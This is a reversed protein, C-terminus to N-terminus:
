GIAIPHMSPLVKKAFGKGHNQFQNWEKMVSVQLNQGCGKILLLFFSSLTLIINLCLFYMTSNLHISYLSFSNGSDMVGVIIDKGYSANQLLKERSNLLSTGELLSVFDWSRTTHPRIEYPDSHFVSVVGEM